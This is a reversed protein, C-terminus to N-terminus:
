RDVVPLLNHLYRAVSFCDNEPQQKSSRLRREWRAEGHTAFTILGDDPDEQGDEDPPIHNYLIWYNGRM